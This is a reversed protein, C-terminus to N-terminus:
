VAHAYLHVVGNRTCRNVLMRDLQKYNRNIMANRAKFPLLNSPCNEACRGCSTCIQTKVHDIDKLALICNMGPIVPMDTDTITKGSVLDGIIIYKPDEKLKCIDLLYSLSTGIPVRLNASRSICNGDITVVCTTHCDGNTTVQEIFNM